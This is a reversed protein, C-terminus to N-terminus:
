RFLFDIWGFELGFLFVCAAIVFLCILQKQLLTFREKKVRLRQSWPDPVVASRFQPLVVYFQKPRSHPVYDIRKQSLM